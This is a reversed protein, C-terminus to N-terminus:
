ILVIALYAGDCDLGLIWIPIALEIRLIVERTVQIGALTLYLHFLPYLHSKAHTKHNGGIIPTRLFHFLLSIKSLCDM